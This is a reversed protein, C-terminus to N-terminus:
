KLKKSLYLFPTDCIAIMIELITTTTAIAFITKLDYIGIFAFITFFYNELCNSIITAINNRVWMKNPIKKKIKEFVIIDLMNSLYCMVISSISIRLNFTFINKLSDNVMDLNNPKFLLSFQTAITFLIVSVIGINIAKRSEKASYKESLIDTALFTSAFLINGLTAQLGLININKAVLINATVLAVALWVYLGEKKFIKEIIIEISFCLVIGLIGLLINM